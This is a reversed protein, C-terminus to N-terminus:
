NNLQKKELEWVILRELTKLGFPTWSVGRYSKPDDYCEKGAKPIFVVNSGCWIKPVYGLVLCVKYIVTLEEISREDLNQLVIPKLNYPGAAKMPKFSSIAAQVKEESIFSFSNSKIFSHPIGSDNTNTENPEYELSGPFHCNFLTSLAEAGSTTITGDQKKFMGFTLSKIGNVSKNLKSLSKVDEISSCKDRWSKKKALKM